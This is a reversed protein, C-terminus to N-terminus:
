LYVEGDVGILVQVGSEVMKSEVIELFVIFEWLGLDKEENDVDEFVSLDFNGDICRYNRLCLFVRYFFIQYDVLYVVFIDDFLFDVLNVLVVFVLLIFEIGLISLDKFFGDFFFFVM